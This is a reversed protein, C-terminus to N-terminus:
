TSALTISFYNEPGALLMRVQGFGGTGLSWDTGDPRKCIEIESQDIDHFDNLSGVWPALQDPSHSDISSGGACLVAYCM